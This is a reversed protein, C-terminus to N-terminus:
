KRIVITKAPFHTLRYKLCINAYSKEDRLSAHAHYQVGCSIPVVSSQVYMWAICSIGYVKHPPFLKVEEQTSSNYRTTMTYGGEDCSVFNYM